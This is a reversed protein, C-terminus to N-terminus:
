SRHEIQEGIASPPLCGSKLAWWSLVRIVLLAEALMPAMGDGIM